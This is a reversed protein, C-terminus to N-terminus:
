TDADDRRLAWLYYALIGGAIAGVVLAKLLFRVTLGGGLLTYVLGVLDGIAVIAAVFLALYTLWKRAGSGRRTPDRRLARRLRWSVHLFVPVAVIMQALPLRVAEAFGAWAAGTGGGEPFLRDIVEFLLDGLGWVALFLTTFLLLYRFTEGASLWPRPRPVPVPFDVAAFRGLALLIRHRPWGAAVLVHEITDRDEGRALAERVFRTLEDDSGAM